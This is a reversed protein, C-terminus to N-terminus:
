FDGKPAVISFVTTGDSRKIQKLTTGFKSVPPCLGSNVYLTGPEDTHIYSVKGSTPDTVKTEAFPCQELSFVYKNFNIRDLDKMPQNVTEKQFERPDYKGFFLVFIAPASERNTIVIKKYRSLSVNVYAVMDKYGEMRYWPRHYIQQVYYNHLYSTINYVYCVLILIFITTQILKYKTLAQRIRILGYATIFPLSPFIILTRQLNPIDDFTLASGILGAFFWTLIIFNEGSLDRLLFFLGALIFPLEVIFVLGSGPVRYREPLGQDTFFFKYSLHSFYNELFQEGYAQIKNHFVRSVTPSIKAVGDERGQEDVTLQTEQTAFLSVTKIRLSLEPSKLIYLVPLIVCLIFLILPTFKRQITKLRKFWVLYLVPIFIPLFARPAQYLTFTILFSVFSTVVWYWKKHDIWCTYLIVGLIIFFVVLTNETSTRSLNIHWPSIALLFSSLIAITEKQKNKEFLQKALVYALLVTFTGFLASPFRVALPTLGFIRIFPIVAYAYGGPSYLYSKLHIPLFNGSMDRGTKMISYANYGLFAEDRHFGVPVDGLKYFRLVAAIFLIAILIYKRKM